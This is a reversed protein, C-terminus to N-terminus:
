SSQTSSYTFTNTFWRSLQRVKALVFTGATNGLNLPPSSLSIAVNIIWIYPPLHHRYFIYVYSQFNPLHQYVDSHIPDWFAKQNAPVKSNLRISHASNQCTFIPIPLSEQPLFLTHLTSASVHLSYELGRCHPQCDRLALRRRSNETEPLPVVVWKDRWALLWPITRSVGRNGGWM